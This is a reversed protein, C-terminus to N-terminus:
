DASKEALKAQNWLADLQELNADTPTKGQAQLADEV